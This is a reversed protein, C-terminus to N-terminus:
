ETGNFLFFINVVRLGECGVCARVYVYIYIHQYENQLVMM